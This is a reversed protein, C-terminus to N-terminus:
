EAIEDFVECDEVLFAALARCAATACGTYRSIWEVISDFILDQDAGSKRLKIYALRASQLFDEADFGDVGDRKHIENQIFVYYRSVLGEIDGRLAGSDPRIKNELKIPTYRLEELAKPDSLKDLSNLLEELDGNLEIDYLAEEAQYRRKANLKNAMLKACKKVSFHDQYDIACKLTLLAKNDRSSYDFGGDFDPVISADCMKLLMGRLEARQRYDFEPPVITVPTYRTLHKSCLFCRNGCEGKLYTEETEVEYTMQLPLEAQPQEKLPDQVVDGNIISAFLEAIADPARYTRSDPLYEALDQRLAEIAASNMEDLWNAFKETDVHGRLSKLYSGASAHKPIPTDYYHKFTQDSRNLNSDKLDSVDVINEFLLRTFGGNSMGTCIHEHLTQAFECFQISSM